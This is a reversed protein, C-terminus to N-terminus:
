SCAHTTAFLDGTAALWKRKFMAREGFHAALDANAM